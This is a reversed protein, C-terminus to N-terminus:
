RLWRAVLYGVGYPAEDALLDADYATGQLAAAAARWAPRGGAAVEAALSADLAALEDPKGSRLAAAVAADFAAAQPHLSAPARETRAASGDAVVVLATAVDDDDALARGCDDLSADDSAPDLEVALREGAWGRQALLWAGITSSLSLRQDSSSAPGLAVDLDVGFGRLTGTGVAYTATGHPAPTGIVRSSTGLVVVRAPGTSLAADLAQLSAKRVTDLESAAGSGAEPVLLPTSPVFAAATIM